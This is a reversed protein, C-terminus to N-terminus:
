RHHSRNLNSNQNSRAFRSYCALFLIGMLSGFSDLNNVKIVLKRGFLRSSFKKSSFTPWGKNCAVTYYTILCVTLGVQKNVTNSCFTLNPQLSLHLKSRVEISVDLTWNGIDLDQHSFISFNFNM